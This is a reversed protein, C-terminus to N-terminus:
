VNGITTRVCKELIAIKDHMVEGRIIVRSWEVAFNNRRITEASLGAGKGVRSEDSPMIALASLRTETAECTLEVSLRKLTYM